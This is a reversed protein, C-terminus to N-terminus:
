ANGTSQHPRPSGATLVDPSAADAGEILLTGLILRYHGVLYAQPDSFRKGANPM